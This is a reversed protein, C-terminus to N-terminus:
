CCPHAVGLKDKQYARAEKFNDFVQHYYSM